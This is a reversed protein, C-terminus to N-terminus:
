LNHEIVCLPLVNKKNKMVYIGVNTSFGDYGNPVTMYKPKSHGYKKIYEKSKESKLDSYYSSNHKLKNYGVICLIVTNKIKKDYYHKLNQIEDTLNIGKGFASLRARTVDFGNKLIKKANELTTIHYMVKYTKFNNSKFLDLNQSIHTNRM